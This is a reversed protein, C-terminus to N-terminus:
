GLFAAKTRSSKTNTKHQWYMHAICQITYLATCHDNKGHMGIARAYCKKFTLNELSWIINFDLTSDVLHTVQVGTLIVCKNNVM